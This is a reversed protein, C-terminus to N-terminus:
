VELRIVQDIGVPNGNYCSGSGANTYKGGAGAVTILQSLWVHPLGHSDGLQMYVNGDVRWAIILDKRTLTDGTSRILEQSDGWAQGRWFASVGPHVWDYDGGKDTHAM